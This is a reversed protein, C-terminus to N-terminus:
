KMSKLSYDVSYMTSFKVVSGFGKQATYPKFFYGAIPFIADLIYLIQGHGDDAADSLTQFTYLFDM